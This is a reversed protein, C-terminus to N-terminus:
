TLPRNELSKAVWGVMMLEVLGLSALDVLHHREQLLNPATQDLHSPVRRYSSNVASPNRDALLGLEPFDAAIGLLSFDSTTAYAM